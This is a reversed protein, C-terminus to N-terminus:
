RANLTSGLPTVDFTLNRVTIGPRTQAVDFRYRLTQGQGYCPITNFAEREPPNGSYVDVDYVAEDYRSQPNLESDLQLRDAAVTDHNWYYSLEVQDLRTGCIKVKNGKVVAGKGIEHSPSDFISQLATPYATDGQTLWVQNKHAIVLRANNGGDLTSGLLRLDRYSLDKDMAEKDINYNVLSRTNEKQVDFRLSQNDESPLMTAWKTERNLCDALFPTIQKGVNRIKINNTLTEVSIEQLGFAGLSYVKDLVSTVSFPGHTTVTSYGDVFVYNNIDYSGASANRIFSIGEKKFIILSGLGAILAKFYNQASGSVYINGSDAAASPLVVWRSADDLVTTWLENKDKLIAWLRREWVYAYLPQNEDWGDGEVEIALSYTDTIDDVNLCFPAAVGDCGFLNSNLLALSPRGTGSFADPKIISLERDQSLYFLNRTGAIFHGGNIDDKLYGDAQEDLPLEVLLDCYSPTVIKGSQLEVNQIEVAMGYPTIDESVREPSVLGPSFNDFKIYAM